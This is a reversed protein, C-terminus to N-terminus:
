DAAYCSIAYQLSVSSFKLWVNYLSIVVLPLSLRDIIKFPPAVYSAECERLPPDGAPFPYWTCYAQTLFLQLNPQVSHFGVFAQFHQTENRL